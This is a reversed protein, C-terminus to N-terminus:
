SVVGDEPLAIGVKPLPSERGGQIQGQIIFTDGGPLRIGFGGQAGFGDVFEDAIVLGAAALAVILLIAALLKKM